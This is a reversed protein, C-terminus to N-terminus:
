AAPRRESASKLFEGLDRNLRNDHTFMLGHSAGPYTILRGDFIMRQACAATVTLPAFVDTEGHVLLTPMTFASMDARVDEFFSSRYVELMPVLLNRLGLNLIWTRAGETVPHDAGAPNFFLDLSDLFIQARDEIM